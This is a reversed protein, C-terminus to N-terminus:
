TNVANATANPNTITNSPLTGPPRDSLQQAIQGIQTELNQLSAQQSKLDAEHKLLVGSIDIAKSNAKKEAENTKNMLQNLMEEIKTYSPSQQSSSSQDQYQPKPQFPQNM